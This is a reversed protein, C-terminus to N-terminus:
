NGILKRVKPLLSKGLEAESHFEQVWRRSKAGLEIKWNKDNRLRALWEAVVSESDSSLIPHWPYLQKMVSENVFCIVPCETSLGELVICGFWGIGFDDAVVDSISYYNILEERTFGFARPPKLWCVNETIQLHEILQKAISTDPSAPRDIMVLVASKANEQKVFQAFARILVDNRKWNGAKRFNPHDNIMIRSPHFVIFEFRKQLEQLQPDQINQVDKVRKIKETDMIVPFYFSSRRVPEVGIQDLADQFPFFPQSWIETLRRLGRRQWFGLIYARLKDSLKPYLFPYKQPFPVLTLDAGTAMLVSPKSVFQTFVPGIGSTLILDYKELEKVIPSRWPAITSGSIFYDGKHIWPPYNNLLESNDSEPRQQPDSHVDVYLHADFEPSQRLIRCVHYLTNGINGFLGIRM